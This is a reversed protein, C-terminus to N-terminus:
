CEVHGDTRLALGVHTNLVKVKQLIIPLVQVMYKNQKAYCCQKKFNVLEMSPVYGDLGLCAWKALM